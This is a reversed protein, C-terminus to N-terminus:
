AIIGAVKVAMPIQWKGQIMTGLFKQNGHQMHSFSRLGEVTGKFAAECDDELLKRSDLKKESAGTKAMLYSIVVDENHSLSADLMEQRAKELQDTPTNVLRRAAGARMAQFCGSFWSWKRGLAGVHNTVSHPFGIFDNGDFEKLIEDTWFITDSDCYVIYDDDLVNTNAAMYEWGRLKSMAHKWGCWPAFWDPRYAMTVNSNLCFSWQRVDPHETRDFFATWNERRGLRYWSRVLQEFLDWDRPCVYCFPHINM